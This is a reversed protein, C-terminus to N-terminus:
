KNSARLVKGRYIGDYLKAALAGDIDKLFAYQTIAGERRNSLLMAVGLNHHALTLEPKLKLAREFSEIAERYNRYKPRRRVSITGHRRTTRSLRSRAGILM